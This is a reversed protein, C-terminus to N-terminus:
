YRKLRTILCFFSPWSTLFFSFRLLEFFLIFFICDFEEYVCCKPRESVGGTNKESFGLESTSWLRGWPAPFPQPLSSVSRQKHSRTAAQSRQTLSRQRLTRGQMRGSARVSQILGKRKRNEPSLHCFGQFFQVNRYGYDQICSHPIYVSIVQPWFFHWM